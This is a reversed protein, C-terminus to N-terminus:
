DTGSVLKAEINIVVDVDKGLIAGGGEVIGNWSIGFDMRNLTTKVEFAAQEVNFLKGFGLISVDLTVPRTTGHLGLDGVVTLRNEGAERVSTSRFTMKPHHAVDFFEDSRLHRDREENDTNISAVDVDFTVSGSTPDDPDIVVTGSFDTFRGPVKSFLHRISFTVSSHGPDIEYTKPGAKAPTPGTLALSGLVILVAAQTAGGRFPQQVRM